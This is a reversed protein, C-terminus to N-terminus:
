NEDSTNKQIIRNLRIFIFFYEQFVGDHIPYFDIAVNM